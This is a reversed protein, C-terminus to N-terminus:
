VLEKLCKIRSPHRLARLARDKILSVTQYSINLKDAIQQLTLDEKYYMNIIDRCKPSLGNVINQVKDKIELEEYYNDPLLVPETSALLVNRVEEYNFEREIENKRVRMVGDTWIEDIQMGFFDAIKTASSKIKCTGNHIYYPSIKLSEYRIYTGYNVGIMKAMQPASKGLEERLRILINNRVKFTLRLEKM